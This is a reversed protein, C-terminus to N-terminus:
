RIGRKKQKKPSKKATKKDNDFQQRGVKLDTQTDSIIKEADATMQGPTGPGIGVAYIKNMERDERSQPLLMRIRM